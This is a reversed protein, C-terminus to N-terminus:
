KRAVANTLLTKNLYSPFLGPLIEPVQSAVNSFMALYMIDFIMKLSSLALRPDDLETISIM